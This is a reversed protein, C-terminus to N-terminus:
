DQRLFREVSASREAEIEQKIEPHTADFADLREKATAIEASRDAAMRARGTTRMTEAADYHAQYDDERLNTWASVLADRQQRLTQPASLIEAEHEARAAEHIAWQEPTLGVLDRKGNAGTKGTDLVWKLPSGAPPMQPVSQVGNVYVRQGDTTVVYPGAQRILKADM